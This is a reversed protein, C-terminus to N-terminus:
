DTAHLTGGTVAAALRLRARHLRSKMAATTLGLMAAVDEGSLGELDRLTLVEREDPALGALAAVLRGHQEAAVALQEPNPGGWGARIGLEDLPTADIPERAVRVRRTVAANRAITLLWTRVSSEGRFGSVSQWASLFTQQLVDEAEDRTGAIHRALRYVSAQHRTVLTAFAERDGTAARRALARDILGEEDADPM